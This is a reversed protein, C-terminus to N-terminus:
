WRADRGLREFLARNHEAYHEDLLAIAAPDTTNRMGVNRAKALVRPFPHLGLFEFVRGVTSPGNAFLDDSMLILIQSLPFRAFYRELQELYHGRQVYSNQRFRTDDFLQDPVAGGFRAMLELEERVARLLSRRERGKRVAHFYHSIARQTPDRLVVILKVDPLHRAIREAAAAHMLYYPSAEGTLWEGSREAVRPFNRLYWDYGNRYQLDFFHIEKRAAGAISPHETLAYYLSTTGAKQAGVILFDPDRRAGRLFTRGVMRLQYKARGMLMAKNLM